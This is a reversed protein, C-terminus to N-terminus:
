GGTVKQLLELWGNVGLPTVRYWVALEQWMPATLDVGVRQAVQWDFLFVEKGVQALLWVKGGVQGRKRLWLRQEATYHHIKVVTTTRKPFADLHKLECWFETSRYCGNVDPVGIGCRDEIRILHLEPLKDWNRKITSWFGSENM